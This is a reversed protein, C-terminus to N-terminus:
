LSLVKHQYELKVDRRDLALYIPTVETMELFFHHLDDKTHYKLYIKQTELILVKM